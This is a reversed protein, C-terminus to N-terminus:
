CGLLKIDVLIKVQVTTLKFKELVKLDLVNIWLQSSLSKKIELQISKFENSKNNNLFFFKCDILAKTPIIYFSYFFYGNKEYYLSLFYYNFSKDFNEINELLDNDKISSM